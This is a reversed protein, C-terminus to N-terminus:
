MVDAIEKIERIEKFFKDVPDVVIRNIRVSGRYIQSFLSVPRYETVSLATTILGAAVISAIGKILFVEKLNKDKEYVNIQTLVNDTFNGPTILIEHASLTDFIGQMDDYEMKCETCKSLHKKIHYEEIESLECCLYSDLKKIVEQCEM